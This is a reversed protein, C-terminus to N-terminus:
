SGHSQHHGPAEIVLEQFGTAPDLARQLPTDSPLIALLIEATTRVRSGPCLHGGLVHGQADAVVAHLHAGDRCISGALSLLELDGRLTTADQRGAYRLMAVSLSGMGSVVFAGGGAAESVAQELRQRLDDGPRLRLPQLQM